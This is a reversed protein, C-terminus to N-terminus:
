SGRPKQSESDDFQAGSRLRALAKMGEVTVKYTKRAQQSTGEKATQIMYQPKRHILSALTLTINGVGHGLHKLKSNVDFGTVGSKGEKVQLYYSVVLAREAPSQPSLASFFDAVSDYDNAIAELNGTAKTPSPAATAPSTSYSGHAPHIPGDGFDVEFLWDIVRTRAAKPLPELLKYAEEMAKTEVLPSYKIEQDM